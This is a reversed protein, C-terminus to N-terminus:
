LSMSWSECFADTEPVSFIGTESVSYIVGDCIGPVSIVFAVVACVADEPSAIDPEIVKCLTAFVPVYESRIPFGVIGEAGPVRLM